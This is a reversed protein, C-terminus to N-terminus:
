RLCFYCAPVDVLTIHSCTSFSINYHQNGCLRSYNSYPTCPSIVRDMVFISCLTHWQPPSTVHLCHCIVEMGKDRALISVYKHNVVSPIFIMQNPRRKIHQYLQGLAALILVYRSSSSCNSM